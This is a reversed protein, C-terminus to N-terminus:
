TTAICMTRCASKWAASLWRWSATGRAPNPGFGSAEHESEQLAPEGEELTEAMQEQDALEDTESFEVEAPLAEPETEEEASYIEATAADATALEFMQRHDDCCFEGDVFSRSPALANNCYRCRM